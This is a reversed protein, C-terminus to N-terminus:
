LGVVSAIAKGGVVQEVHSHVDDVAEWVGGLHGGEVLYPRRGRGKVWGNMEQRDGDNCLNTESTQEGKKSVEQYTTLM